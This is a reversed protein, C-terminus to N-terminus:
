PYWQLILDFIESAKALEENIRKLQDVLEEAEPESSAKPAVSNRRYRINM